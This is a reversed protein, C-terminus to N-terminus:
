LRAVTQLICIMTARGNKIYSILQKTTAAAEAREVFTRVCERETKCASIFKRYEEAFEFVKKKEEESYHNWAVEREM